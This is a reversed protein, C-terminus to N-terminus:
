EAKEADGKSHMYLNQQFQEEPRNKFLEILIKSELETGTLNLQSCYSHKTRLLSFAQNRWTPSKGVVERGGKANLISLICIKSFTLEVKKRM